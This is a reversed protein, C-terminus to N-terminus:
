CDMSALRARYRRMARRGFDSHTSRTHREPHLETYWPSRATESHGLVDRVRIGHRCALWRTLALSAALQRRNGMVEADSFGIHEIGLAVDNVGFAHRCRIREDVLQYITGDRAILFHACTGPLEGLEADPRNRAFLRRTDRVSDVQTWHQVIVLPRLRWERDGYHRRSYAAMDARRKAGYPIRRQVVRPRAAGAPGPEREPEAAVRPPATATTTPAVTPSARPVSVEEGGSGCGALLVALPVVARRV